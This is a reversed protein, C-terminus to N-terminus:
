LRALAPSEDQVEVINKWFRKPMFHTRLEPNYRAEVSVCKYFRKWADQMQVDSACPDPLHFPGDEESANVLYWRSGDYAGCIGHNEDYIMFPQVSFREIFHGMIFPIVSHKPNCRAFWVNGTEDQFHNFRIFQRMHECEQNVSRVLDFLPAVKPHSINNVPSRNGKHEDMVYRAFRYVVFGANSNSCVSSRRIHKYALSGGKKILGKRVREAIEESTRVYHVRQLLRQEFERESSVDTPDEHNAYSDYIACLLGELTGDYVYAVEDFLQETSTISDADDIRM